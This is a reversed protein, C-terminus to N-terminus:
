IIGMYYGKYLTGLYDGYLGKLDRFRINSIVTTSWAEHGASVRQEAKWLNSAFCCYDYYCYLFMYRYQVEFLKMTRITMIIILM